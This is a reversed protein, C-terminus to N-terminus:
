VQRGLITNFTQVASNLNIADSDTLGDGISAFAFQRNSFFSAVGAFNTAGLYLSVAALNSTRVTTNTGILNGNFFMRLVNNATRSGIVLGLTNTGGGIIADTPYSYSVILKGIGSYYASLAFNGASNNGIDHAGTTSQTRSYFSLHSSNVSLNTSTVLFTDAYSNVGNPLAGNQSHVWGGTFVLRFGANTDVPNILNWKQTSATSGVFPYVAKMKDWLGFTKLDYVLRIIANQQIGDTIGVANIFNIAFTDPFITTGFPEIPFLNKGFAVGRNGFSNFISM